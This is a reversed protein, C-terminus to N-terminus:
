SEQIVRLIRATTCGTRTFEIRVRRELDFAETLLALMGENAPRGEDARLQFGFSRGPESDLRVVVEVDLQDEPPGFKTGVDHVRLLTLRGSTATTGGPMADWDPPLPGLRLVGRNSTALYIM